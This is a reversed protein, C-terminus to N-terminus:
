IYTHLVNVCQIMKVSYRELSSQLYFKGGNNFKLHFSKISKIDM